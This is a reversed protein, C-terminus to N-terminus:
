GRGEGGLLPPIRPQAIAFGARVFWGCRPVQKERERAASGAQSADDRCTARRLPDPSLAPTLPFPAVKAEIGSGDGSVTVSSSDGPLAQSKGPRILTSLASIYRTVM